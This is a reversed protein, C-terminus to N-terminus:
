PSGTAREAGVAPAVSLPHAVPLLTGVLRARLETLITQHCVLGGVLVSQGLAAGQALRQGARNKEAKEGIERKELSQAPFGPPPRLGGGGPGGGEEGLPVGPAPSGTPKPQGTGRMRRPRCRNREKRWAAFSLLLSGGTSPVGPSDAQRDISKKNNPREPAGACNGRRASSWEACALGGGALFQAAAGAEPFLPVFLGVLYPSSFIWHEGRHAGAGDRGATHEAPGDRHAGADAPNFLAIGAAPACVALIAPLLGIRLGALLLGRGHDWPGLCLYVAGDPPLRPRICLGAPGLARLGGGDRHGYAPGDGAWVGRYLPLVPDCECLLMGCLCVRHREPASHRSTGGRADAARGGRGAGKWGM